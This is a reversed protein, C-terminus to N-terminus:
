KSQYNSLFKKQSISSHEWSALGVSTVKEFGHALLLVSWYTFLRNIIPVICTILTGELKKMAQPFVSSILHVSFIQKFIDKKDM